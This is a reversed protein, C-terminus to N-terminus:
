MNLDLNEERLKENADAKKLFNSFSMDIPFDPGHTYLPEEPPFPVGNCEVRKKVWEEYDPHAVCDRKGLDAKIKMRVHSWARVARQLAATDQLVDYYLAEKVFRDELPGVLSFGLQRVVLCPNYNIGGPIGMLTVSDFEGCGFIMEDDKWDLGAAYWRIDKSKLGMLRKAWSLSDQTAVFAGKCPLHNKFWMYLLPICCNVVGGTGKYNRSHLFHYVYGLLTPVRDGVMFIPIANIDVFDPIKPFLVIGYICLALLINFDKWVGKDAAVHARKLLSELSFGSRSVKSEFNAEAWSKSLYLAPALQDSSLVGMTSYFPTQHKVLVGVLYSYEELTPMLQFVVFIFCRLPPDYFQLLTHVGREQYVTLPSDMISLIKGYSREIVAENEPPSKEALALLAGVSPKMFKYVINRNKHQCM